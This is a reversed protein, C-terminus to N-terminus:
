LWGFDEWGCPEGRGGEGDGERERFALLQCCYVQTHSMAKSAHSTNLRRGPVEATAGGSCLVGRSYCQQTSASVVQETKLNDQLYKVVKSFKEDGGVQMTLLLDDSAQVSALALLPLM